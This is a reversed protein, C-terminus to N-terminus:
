KKRASLWKKFSAQSEGSAKGLLLGDVSIDEDLEQWHVGQGKGILRWNKREDASAHLLRPYWALPVSITRGDSLDVALTDESVIVNVAKPIEVEIVPPPM